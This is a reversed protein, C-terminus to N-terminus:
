IAQVCILKSPTSINMVYQQLANIAALSVGLGIKVSDLAQRLTDVRSQNEGLIERFKARRKLKPIDNGDIKGDKVIQDTLFHNFAALQDKARRLLRDIEEKIHDPLHQEQGAVATHVVRLIAKFDTM